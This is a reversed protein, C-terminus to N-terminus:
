YRPRPLGTAPAPDSEMPAASTVIRALATVKRPQGPQGPKLRFVNALGYRLADMVHDYFGDKLPFGQEDRAYGSRLGDVITRCTLPDIEMDGASIIYQGIQLGEDVSMGDRSKVFVNKGALIQISTEPSKDDHQNGACDGYDEVNAGAFYQPVCPLVHREAFDVLLIERWIVERLVYVKYRNEKEFYEVQFYVAAPM